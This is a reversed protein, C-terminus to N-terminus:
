EFGRRVAAVPAAGRQMLTGLGLGGAVVVVVIGLVAILQAPEVTIPVAVRSGVLLELGLGDRVGLFIGLGLATGLAFALGVAPGHEVIVLGAAQRGTLGMTRLHAVEVARAAGALTLSAAIALVAYAIAILAAASIGSEVARSIPSDRLAATEAARSTVTAGVPLQAQVASRIAKEAGAPARLFVSTPNMPATPFLAKIQDRSAIVFLDESTLAPLDDHAAVIRAPFTYGQVTVRLEAGPPLGDPREALARSAVLPIVQPAAAFLDLPLGPDAPTGAVVADYDAAALAIFQVRLNRPGMTVIGTWAVAAAEVGPLTEPGLNARISGRSDIRYAAGV